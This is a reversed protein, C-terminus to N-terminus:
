FRFIYNISPVLGFISSQVAESELPNTARQRVRLAQANFRNYANLVGFQLEGRGFTRTASLDLRHYLPLRSGNRASYEPVLIGDVFYRSSPLTVPLGSALSFTSGITWNPKWQWVGVLTFNHTKDFPTPYWQGRNIGGNQTGAARFRQEARGLTYSGWGTLRGTSRRAFLELGYARGLGQVLITELRPNLIVDAGDVFDVVNEATKYYTEASLEYGNWNRAWGLAYQDAVQPKVFPGAPEWVDLPTVSNRNSILQLFQQTRAYSLKLSQNDTLSFRMSARPEVGSYSTMAAGKKVTSSDVLTGPEYRGLGPNYVVPLGNRYSYRTAQGVRAFDAFRLGYQIGIRSGLELEHAIYAARTISYRPEVETSRANLADGYTQVKGPKFINRTWEGGFEIKQSATLQFTEDVKIDSSQIGAVWRVSDHPDMRFGVKYDYDSWAGTVKSYLRGGIAQNWRLTTARNGWGVGFGERRQALEDRGMYGSAIVTGNRGLAFNAKANLDYFYATTSKLSSDSSLGLFADAYSRRAAVMWSGRLLPLPGELLARSALLGISASGTFKERNGDRQRIDVVSSLRGGFRSPIAGKYLMVDDIADANFTSLFGLIHSPNYITSEDLLILNQDAGGGRVSFATSADSTTSVGPLLTLTRVPDVEGLMPPVSRATKMDIKLVSMQPSQPDLDTRDERSAQVQVTSLVAEQTRLAFDLQLRSTIQITTDLPAYGLARIRLRHAGASLVLAYFGEENTQRIQADDDVRITARRLVEGSAQSRVFGSLRENRDSAPAAEELPAGPTAARAVVLQGSPSVMVRLSTGAFLRLVATRAPVRSVTLTVSAAMGPLARDAVYSLNAQRAIEALIAVRPQNKMDVTVNTALAGQPSTVSELTVFGAPPQVQSLSQPSSQSEQARGPRGPALLALALLLHRM